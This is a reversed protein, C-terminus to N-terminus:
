PWIGRMLTADAVRKIAIILAVTRFDPVANVRKEDDVPTVPNDGVVCGQWYDFVADVAAYMRKQLKQNIVDLDWQENASNQVWEYYSVTVGGANALIDPIVYIGRQQLIEDAAPTTPNNAAEVVLKAKINKANDRNIQLATASPILIDCDIELLEENDITLTDPMGVVSGHEAKFAAVKFPDLGSKSYIGGKSDSVAVITAGQRFFEGAAISGVNGFGQIAIRAGAIEQQEPILAKSLFHQTAFMCGKGTAEHRGLSGGLSIPKGTVVPRNNEDPNLRDYTDFIWAMTQEDTYMDPAPIDTSPGIISFLESTFRRTIHRLENLSLAKTDCVVGGKAGGFPLNVLACKWTMLKALSTVEEVTLDPHYRIGGKSPGFVRNHIVRFCQITKVSGDDLEVPFHIIHVRNPEKLYDILGSKLDSIYAAAKDFQQESIVIPDLIEESM